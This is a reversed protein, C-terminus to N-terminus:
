RTTTEKNLRNEKLSGREAARPDATRSPDADTDGATHSWDRLCPRGHQQTPTSALKTTPLLPQLSSPYKLIESKKKKLDSGHQLQIWGRQGTRESFLSQRRWESRWGSLSHCKLQKSKVEASFDSWLQEGLHIFHPHLRCSGPQFLESKKEGRWSRISPSPFLLFFFFFGWSPRPNTFTLACILCTKTLAAEDSLSPGSRLLQEDTRGTMLLPIFSDWQLPFMYRCTPQLKNQVDEVYLLLWTSIIWICVNYVCFHWHIYLMHKFDWHSIFTVM